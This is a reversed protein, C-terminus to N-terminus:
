ISRGRVERTKGPGSEGQQPQRQRADGGGGGRRGQPGGRAPRGFRLTCDEGLELRSEQQGPKESKMASEGRLWEQGDKELSQIFLHDKLLPVLVPEITKNRSHLIKTTYSQINKNTNLVNIKEHPKRIRRAIKLLIIFFIKIM